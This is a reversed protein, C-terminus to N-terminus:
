AQEEDSKRDLGSQQKARRVTPKKLGLRLASGILKNGGGISDYVVDSIQDHLSRVIRTPHRTVPIAELIGFPISAIGRHVSRVTATGFAVGQEALKQLQRLDELQAEARSGELFAAAVRRMGLQVAALERSSRRQQWLAAATAALSLLLLSLVM